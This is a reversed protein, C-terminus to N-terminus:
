ILFLLFNQKKLETAIKHTQIAADLHLDIWFYLDSTKLMMDGLRAYGRM